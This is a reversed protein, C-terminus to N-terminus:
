AILWGGLVANLAAIAAPGASSTRLVSPGLRYSHFGAELFKTVEADSFGGEPGVAITFETADRPVETISKQADPALLIGHGRPSAMTTALPEIDTQWAQQSQKMASNAIQQWRAIGKEAKKSWDVISNEAQFPTVSRVGLEVSTQLALEDRDGKALAQILHITLKPKSILSHDLVEIAGTSSDVVRCRFASGRGDTVVIGEGIRIRLSAFHRLEEQGVSRSTATFAPDFFWHTM